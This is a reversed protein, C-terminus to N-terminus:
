HTLRPCQDTVELPQAGQVNESNVGLVPGPTRSTESKFAGKGSHLMKPRQPYTSDGELLSPCSERSHWPCTIM